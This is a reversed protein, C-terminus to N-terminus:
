EPLSPPGPVQPDIPRGGDRAPTCRERRCRRVHGPSHGQGPLTWYGHRRRAAPSVIVVHCCWVSGRGFEPVGIVVVRGSLQPTARAVADNRTDATTESLVEADVRREQADREDCQTERAAGRREHVDDGPDDHGLRRRVFIDRDGSTM